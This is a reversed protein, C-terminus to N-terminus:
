DRYNCNCCSVQGDYGCGCSNCHLMRKGDSHEEWHAFGYDNEATRLSNGFRDRMTMEFFLQLAEDELSPRDSLRASLLATHQYRCRNGFRCHGSRAWNHCNRGSPSPVSAQAARALKSDHAFRCRDGFRCTGTTRWNRCAMKKPEVKNQGEQPLPPTTQHTDMSVSLSDSHPRFSRYKLGGGSTGAVQNARDRRHSESSMRGGVSVLPSTKKEDPLQEQTGSTLAAPQSRAAYSDFLKLVDPRGRARNRAIGDIAVGFDLFYKIVPMHGYAVAYHFPTSKHGLRVQLDNPSCGSLLLQVLPLHGNLAAIHLPTFEEGTGYENSVGLARDYAEADDANDKMENLLAEVVALDGIQCARHLTIKLMCSRLSQLVIYTQSSVAATSALVFRLVTGEEPQASPLLPPIYTGKMEAEPEYRKARPPYGEAHTWNRSLHVSDGSQVVPYVNHQLLAPRPDNKKFEFSTERLYISKLGPAIPNNILRGIGVEMWPDNKNEAFHLAFLVDDAENGNLQIHFIYRLSRIESWMGTIESWMGTLIGRSIESSFPLTNWGRARELVKCKLELYDFNEVPAHELYFASANIERDTVVDVLQPLAYLRRRIGNPGDDAFFRENNGMPRQPPFAPLHLTLHGLKVGQGQDVHLTTLSYTFLADRADRACNDPLVTGMGVLVSSNSVAILTIENSLYFNHQIFCSGLIKGDLSHMNWRGSLSNRYTTIVKPRWAPASGIVTIRWTKFRTADRVKQRHGHKVAFRIESMPINREHLRQEGHMTKPVTLHTTATSIVSGTEYINDTDFESTNNQFNEPLDLWNPIQSPLQELQELSFGIFV